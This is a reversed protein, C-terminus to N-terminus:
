TGEEMDRPSGMGHVHSVSLLFLCSEGPDKNVEGLLNANGSQGGFLCDGNGPEPIKVQNGKPHVCASPEIRLPKRRERLVPQGM